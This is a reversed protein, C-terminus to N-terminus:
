CRTCRTLQEASRMSSSAQHVWRVTWMGSLLGIFNCVAVDLIWSDWWCENFNPLMHQFTLEMLEFGISLIWLLPYNRIILAKGWWGLTHAIVFEDFLTGKIVDWNIGAGPIVLRCDAGYAREPMEVGLDPYLLQMCLLADCPRSTTLGRPM